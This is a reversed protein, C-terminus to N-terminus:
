QLAAAVKQALDNVSFPKSIWAVIGQELLSRGDQELPYGSMIVMKVHPHHARIHEFLKM